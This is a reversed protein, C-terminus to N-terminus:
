KPHIQSRRMHSPMQSLWSIVGRTRPSISLNDGMKAITDGTEDIQSYIGLSPSLRQESQWFPPYSSWNGFCPIGSMLNRFRPIVILKWIKYLPLQSSEQFIISIKITICFRNQFSSM